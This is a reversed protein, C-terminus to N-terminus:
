MKETLRTACMTAVDTNAEKRDPMTAWGAKAIDQGRDWWTQSKLKALRGAPDKAAMFKGVCVATALEQRASTAAQSVMAKATGGTVWGAMGFGGILTAAVCAAAFWLAHVKGPRYDDWRRQLAEIRKM